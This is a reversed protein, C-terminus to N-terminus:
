MRRWYDEVLNDPEVGDCLECYDSIFEVAADYLAAKYKYSPLDCDMKEFDPKRCNFFLDSLEVNVM